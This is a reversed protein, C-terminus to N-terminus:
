GVGVLGSKTKQVGPLRLSGASLPVAVYAIVKLPSVPESPMQAVDGSEWCAESGVEISLPGEGPLLLPMAPLAPPSSRAGRATPNHESLLCQTCDTRSAHSSSVLTGFCRLEVWLVSVQIRNNGVFVCSQLFTPPSPLFLMNVFNHLSM